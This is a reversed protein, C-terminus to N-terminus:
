HLISVHNRFWKPFAKELRREVDEEGETLLEERCKNDCVLL